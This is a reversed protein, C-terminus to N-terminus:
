EHVRALHLETSLFGALEDAKDAPLSAIRLTPTGNKGALEVHGIGQMTRLQVAEFQQPTFTGEPAASVLGLFRDAKVEIMHRNISGKAGKGHRFLFVGAIAEGAALVPLAMRLIAMTDAPMDTMTDILVLAVLLIPAAALLGLLVLRHSKTTDFQYPLTYNAM